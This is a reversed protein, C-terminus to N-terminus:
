VRANGDKMAQRYIKVAELTALLVVVGLLSFAIWFTYTALVPNANSRCARMTQWFVSNAAAYEDGPAEMVMVFGITNLLAGAAVLATCRIFDKGVDEANRFVKMALASALAVTALPCFPLGIKIDAMLDLNLCFFGFFVALLLSGDRLVVYGLWWIDAAVRLTMRGLIRDFYPRGIHLLFSFISLLIGVDCLTQATWVELAKATTM